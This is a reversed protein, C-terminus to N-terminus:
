TVPDNGVSKSFGTPGSPPGLQCSFGYVKPSSCIQDCEVAITQQSSVPIGAAKLKTSALDADFINRFVGVVVFDDQASAKVV